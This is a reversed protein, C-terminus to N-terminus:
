CLRVSLNENNDNSNHALGQEPHRRAKAGHVDGFQSRPALKDKLINSCQPTECHAFLVLKDTKHLVRRGYSKRQPLPELILYQEAESDCKKSEGTYGNNERLKRNGGQLQVRRHGLWELKSSPEIDRRPGELQEKNQMM